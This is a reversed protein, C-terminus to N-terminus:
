ASYLTPQQTDHVNVQRQGQGQGEREYLGVQEDPSLIAKTTAYACPLGDWV